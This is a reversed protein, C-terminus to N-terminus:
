IVCCFALTPLNTKPLAKIDDSAKSSSSQGRGEPGAGEVAM